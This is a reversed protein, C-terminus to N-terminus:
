SLYRPDYSVQHQDLLRILEVTFGLTRHHEAQRAIYRRLAARDAPAVSFAGYGSQWAFRVDHHAAAWTTSAKKLERVLDSLRHTARLGLLLHVHDAVGGVGDASAGLGRVIGGLYAHLSSAWSLHIIPRRHKTSFVLHIWLSTFTSSMSRRHRM